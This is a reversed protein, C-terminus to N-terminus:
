DDSVGKQWTTIKDQGYGLETWLQSQPVGLDMKYKLEELRDKLSQASKWIVDVSGAPTGPAYLQTLRASLEFCQRFSHGFLKQRNEVKAVLPGEQEKLTEDSAILKTTIFRSVPTNTVLALWMVSQQVLDMFPRLDAAEIVKFDAESKPKTTGVVIGPQIELANSRDKKLDQGDSTPIFGLAVFVRYAAQDETSLLDVVEKNIADQIPIADAAELALDKNYFPIVAIGLPKGNGDVWSIPWEEDGPDQFATWDGGGGTRAWKEIRDPYYLNRRQTPRHDLMETWYKVAVTPILNPDDQPYVVFCGCGDGGVETATYRNQPLWRAYEAGEPWDVIVYHAGDRLAADFIDNQLADLGNAKWLAQAWAIAGVDTADFGVVGLKETVATVVTRAVNLRFEFGGFGQGLFQQLRETLLVGQKGGHYKRAAVVQRMIAADAESLAELYSLSVADLM